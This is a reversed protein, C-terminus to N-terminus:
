GHFLLVGSNSRGFDMPSIRWPHSYDTPPTISSPGGLFCLPTSVSMPHAQLSPTSASNKEGEDSDKLFSPIVRVLFPPSDLVKGELAEPSLSLQALLSASPTPVASTPSAQAIHGMRTFGLIKFLHSARHLSRPALSQFLKPNEGAMSSAPTQALEVRHCLPAGAAVSATYTQCTTRGLDGKQFSVCFSGRLLERSRQTDRSLPTRNATAAILKHSSIRETQCTIVLHQM